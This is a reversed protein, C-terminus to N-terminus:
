RAGGKRQSASLIRALRGNADTGAVTIHNAPDLVRDDDFPVDELVTDRGDPTIRDRKEREFLINKNLLLIIAVAM